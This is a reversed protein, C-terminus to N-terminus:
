SIVDKQLISYSMYKIKGLALSPLRPSEESRIPIVPLFRNPCSCQVGEFSCVFVPGRVGIMGANHGGGKECPSSVRFSLVRKLVVIIDPSNVGVGVM